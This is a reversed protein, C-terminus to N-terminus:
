AQSQLSFAVDGTETLQADLAKDALSDATDAQVFVHVDSQDIVQDGAQPSDALMIALGGGEEPAIRLGTEAPFGSQTTLTRIAAIAQDTLTLVSFEESPGHIVRHHRARRRRTM